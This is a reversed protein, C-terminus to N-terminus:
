YGAAIIDSGADPDPQFRDRMADTLEVRGESDVRLVAVIDLAAALDRWQEPGAVFLATAAADATTGDDAIVTVAQTHTVPFGTRPDLIHHLREGDREYYREYDGSSFAAEGAHLRITGLLGDDRPAQIGIRWARDEREGVVRLDGGANILAPSVGVAEIQAVVRDVAAGKAIGGLDLLLPGARRRSVASNTIELELLSLAEAQLRAIAEAAPPSSGPDLADNFGWLEVLPGVGPDFAGGSIRTIEQARVLLAALEPSVSVQPPNTNIPPSGPVTLIRSLRALEGDGWAYYDTGFAQLESEIDAVLEPHERLAAAPLTLDVTTAMAFLSVQAFEDAAPRCAGVCILLLGAALPRLM